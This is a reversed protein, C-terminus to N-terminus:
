VLNTAATQFVAARRSGEQILLSGQSSIELWDFLPLRPKFIHLINFSEAREHRCWHSVSDAM